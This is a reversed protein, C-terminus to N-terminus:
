NNSASLVSLINQTFSKTCPLSVDDQSPNTVAPVSLAAGPTTILRVTRCEKMTLSVGRELHHTVNRSLCLVLM